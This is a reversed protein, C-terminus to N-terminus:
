ACMTATGAVGGGNTATQASWNERVAAYASVDPNDLLSQVIEHASHGGYLPDIMPQVVSVTGDYARADTWSELYHAANIHWHAELGTEDRHNGLHVVTGVKNFASAFDLDAPTNYIPNTNLIILWDVKGANMDAVLLKLDDNQISPMPNITETYVVTKGVNGLADNIAM